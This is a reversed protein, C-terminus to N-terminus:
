ALPSITGAVVGSENDAFVRIGSIVTDDATMREYDAYEHIGILGTEDTTFDFVKALESEDAPVYYAVMNEKATAKYTGKTIQSNMIVTGLGLFNEVYSFGFATQVTITAGGLYDAVDEPNVFYVSEITDDEYINQLKGWGDALAAQLGAGSATPQSAITLSAILDARIGRQVDQLMKDTTEGVAQNYGKDIIAEASTAKRWKKLTIEGIPVDETEYKSLPIVEGEGVQQTNLSGKVRHRKLATGAQKPIIRTVGLLEMLKKTSYGFRSVFDIMRVTALDENKILNTEATTLVENPM